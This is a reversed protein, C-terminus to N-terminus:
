SRNIEATLTARMSAGLEPDRLAARLFAAYYSEFNGIDHRYEGARLPVAWLGGREHRMPRMSDPLNWEGRPDPGTQRLHRFISASLVFRAAIVLRSPARERPPKEVIDRLAFPEVPHEGVPDVPDVVGYRSVKEPDVTEVLVTAAANQQRYTAILRRLPGSPDPAEILCDGFAVVFPDAGVWEAAQLVADGSGRQEEQVRYDCHLPPRSEDGGTYVTGFFDRIQTKRESIIFLVRTIGANRLEEVVYGLVPLRGVPLLEKPCVCSLPRLRTGLGAAPVVAKFIGASVDASASTPM